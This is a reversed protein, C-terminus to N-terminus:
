IENSNELSSTKIGDWFIDFGIQIVEEQKDPEIQPRILNM